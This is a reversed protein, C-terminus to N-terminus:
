NKEAGSQIQCFPKSPTSFQPGFETSLTSVLLQNAQKFAIPTGYGGCLQIRIDNHYYWAEITTISNNTAGMYSAFPNTINDAPVRSELGTKEAINSLIVKLEHADASNATAGEVQYQKIYLTDCGSILIIAFLLFFHITKIKRM